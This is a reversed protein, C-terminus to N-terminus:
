DELTKLYTCRIVVFVQLLHFISALTPLLEARDISLARSVTCGVALWSLRKECFMNALPIRSCSNCALSISSDPNTFM